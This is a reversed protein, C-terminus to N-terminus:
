FMGKLSGVTLGKRGTKAAPAAATKGTNAVAPSSSAKLHDVQHIDYGEDHDTLDPRHVDSFRESLAAMIEKVRLYDEQTSERMSNLLQRTEEDKFEYLSLELHERFNHLGFRELNIDSLLRSLERDSLQEAKKAEDLSGIYPILEQLRGLRQEEEELIHHYYLRTHEDQAADIIPQIIEAFRDIYGRTRSFIAHLQSMEQM